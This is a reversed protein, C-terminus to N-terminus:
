PGGDRAPFVLASGDPRGSAMRWEALDAALPALIRVTRTQRTKTTKEEGLSLAKDVLLTKERIDSWRLALAEGPRVGAYALVSVLTADRLWGRRLMDSRLKEVAAPALPTITRTRSQRPKRVQRVPNRTLRGWEVGRELMGQLMALTKRITPTGVGEEALEAQFSQIRV